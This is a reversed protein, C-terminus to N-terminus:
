TEKRRRSVAKKPPRNRPQPECAEAWPMKPTFRDSEAPEWKARYKAWQDITRIRWAPGGGVPDWDAPPVDSDPDSASHYRRMGEFQNNTWGYRRLIQPPGVPRDPDVPDRSPMETVTTPQDTVTMEPTAGRQRSKAYHGAPSDFGKSRNGAGGEGKGPLRTGGTVRPPTPHTNRNTV